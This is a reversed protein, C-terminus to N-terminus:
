VKVIPAYFIGPKAPQMTDEDGVLAVKRILRRQSSQHLEEEEKLLCWLCQLTVMEPLHNDM